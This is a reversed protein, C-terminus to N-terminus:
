KRIPQLLFDPVFRNILLFIAILKQTHRTRSHHLLQALEISTSFTQRYL